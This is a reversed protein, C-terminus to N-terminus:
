NNFKDMLEEFQMLAVINYDNNPIVFINNIVEGVENKEEYMTIELEKNM